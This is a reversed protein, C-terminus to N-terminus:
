LADRQHTEVNDINVYFLMSIASYDVEKRYAPGAVTIISICMSKRTTEDRAEFLSGLCEINQM